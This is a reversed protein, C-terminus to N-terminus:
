RSSFTSPHSSFARTCRRPTPWAQPSAPYLTDCMLRPLAAHAAQRHRFSRFLRPVGVIHPSNSGHPPAPLAGWAQLGTGLFNWSGLEASWFLVERASPGVADASLAVSASASAGGGGRAEAGTPQGGSESVGGAPDDLASDQPKAAPEDRIAASFLETLRKAFPLVSFVMRTASFEAPGPAHDQTYLLRLTPNYTGQPRSPPFVALHPPPHLEKHPCDNRNTLLVPAVAQVASPVRKGAQTVTWESIGLGASPSAAPRVWCLPVMALWLRAETKSM